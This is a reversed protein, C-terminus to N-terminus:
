YDDSFTVAEQALDLGYIVPQISFPKGQYTISEPRVTIDRSSFPGAFFDKNFKFRGLNNETCHSNFAQIFLKQPCFLHEGYTIKESSLFHQLSNTVTAVQAQITHFYEPVVQWIDKGSFRESYELYARVCKLMIHPIEDILKEELKPDADRVQKGFDWTLLRRLVSGSNDKWSPVENGALVGPTKWTISIAKENKRAISIDEGSVLSQFEAQELCLDGKVEPSIFMFGDYISSLGFKREINNSLTRVDEPDYFRKFIKTIITSKGSRAIGKFFPIIQWQDMDGVDFTLRGGMVYMWESVDGEFKQYDLVSQMHPTPINRWQTNVYEAPFDQDFYKCATLTPDLSTFEPSDYSYFADTYKAGDWQKAVYIGNRFSWVTRNKQISPFQVDICDTLHKVTDKIMCGKSTSNKWMDFKTEKQTNEYVFNSIPMVPKWAKTKYGDPTVIQQCCYGKYKRMGLTDTLNLLYLLLQQYPLLDDPDETMTSCRFMTDETVITPNNVRTMQRDYLLVQEYADSHMQLLRNVRDVFRTEDGNIDTTKHTDFGARRCHLCLEILHSQIRRHQEALFELDISTPLGNQDLKDHPFLVRFCNTMGLVPDGRCGLNMKAELGSLLEEVETATKNVVQNKFQETRMDTQKAASVNKEITKIAM